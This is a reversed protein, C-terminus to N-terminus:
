KNECVGRFQIEIDVTLAENMYLLEVDPNKKGHQTAHSVLVMQFQEMPMTRRFHNIMILPLSALNLM